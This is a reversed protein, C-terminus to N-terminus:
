GGPDGGRGAAALTRQAADLVTTGEARATRHLVSSARDADIGHRGMLIGQAQAITARSELADTLRRDLEAAVADPSATDIALVQSADRALQSALELEAPGFAGDAEAYINLAGVPRGDALLPASVISGIGQTRALPVFTPWRDESALSDVHFRRGESSAALCPGEGSDYQHRDMTRVVENSSAVTRMRAHRELTVSAGDAGRVAACAMATVVRLVADVTALRDVRSGSSALRARVDSTGGRAAEDHGPAGEPGDDASPGRPELGVVEVIRTVQLLSRVMPSAARVGLTRGSPRLEHSAAVMAQLGSADLFTVRGLDLALDTDLHRALAQLVAGLAPATARDLEGTVRVTVEGPGVETHIAFGPDASVAVWGGPEPRWRRAPPRGLCVM